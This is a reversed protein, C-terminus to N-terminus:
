AEIDFAQAKLVVKLIDSYTVIGILRGNETVAIGDLGHELLAQALENVLTDPSTSLLTKTCFVDLPTNEPRQAGDSMLYPLVTKESLMGCLNHYRDEIPLHHIEYKQMLKWADALTQDLNAALVPSSMIDKVQGLQLEHQRNAEQYHQAANRQTPSLRKAQGDPNLPKPYDDSNSETKRHVPQIDSLQDTPPIGRVSYKKDLPTIIGVGPDHVFFVAM